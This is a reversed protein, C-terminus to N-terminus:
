VVFLYYFRRQELSTLALNVLTGFITELPTLLTFSLPLIKMLLPQDAVVAAPVFEKRESTKRRGETRLLDFAPLSAM